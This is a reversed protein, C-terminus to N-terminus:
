FLGDWFSGGGERDVKEAQQQHYTRELAQNAM